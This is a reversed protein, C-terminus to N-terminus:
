EKWRPDGYPAYTSQYESQISFDGGSPNVFLQNSALTTRTAWTVAYCDSTTYVNEGTIYSQSPTSSTNVQSILTNSIRIDASSVGSRIIAQSSNYFTSQSITLSYSATQKMRFINGTVNNITSNTCSINHITYDANGDAFIVSYNGINSIVCDEFAISTCVGGTADADRACFIGAANRINCSEFVLKGITGNGKQRIIYNSTGNSQINLNFFQIETKNGTFTLGRTGLIPKEDEAYEIGDNGGWIILSTIAEPIETRFSTNASMDIDTNQPIIIAVKGSANELAAAWEDANNITIPTGYDAPIGKLTTFTCTSRINKGNYIALTYTTSPNLNDLSLKGNNELAKQEETPEQPIDTVEGKYLIYGTITGIEEANWLITVSSAKLSGEEITSEVPQGLKTSAEIEGRLIDENYIRIVYQSFQQLGDITAAGANLEDMTLPRNIVETETTGEKLYCILRNVNKGNANWTVRISESTCDEDTVENMIQETTVASSTMGRVTEANYIYIIYSSGLELGTITASSAAIEEATLDRRVVDTEGEKQYTLHTVPLGAADWTTRITGGNIDEATIENLIQEDTTEFNEDSPYSWYSEKGNGVAKIRLYYETDSELGSLIYPAKRISQDQGFILNGQSGMIIDDTLPSKSIEIIYYETEPTADWTVSATLASATISISKPNVRFLRASATNTEWDNGDTCSFVIMGLLFALVGSTLIHNFRKM